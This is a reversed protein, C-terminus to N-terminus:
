FPPPAPNDGPIVQVYFFQTFLNPYGDGPSNQSDDGAAAIKQLVNMGGIVTGFQTYNPGLTTDKWVFFFQSGNTNPGANAMAVTGAPYSTTGLNEDNFLGCVQPRRSEQATTFSRRLLELSTRLHRSWPNVFYGFCQSVRTRFRELGRKEVLDLGLEGFRFAAQYDGFRPGVFWGLQVYAVCSGDSNGHELSLNVMRAVVLCRLNGDIFDAPEEVATLVDLIARCTPDTMPPLDVLAEISRSGLQRLIREYEQRVEDKTPHPSWDIGVRRLYELAAEVARDSQDLASCLETQLRAVVASDVLNGSRRSLVSLRKEAAAFDGILFECEAQHFELGFTLAYRQEWSDEALLARGAVLYTLASAYATSTKARKGAILNLEAVREREELSHILETGRDLQNVIEFIKDEIEESATRSVFLRGIRLHVAARESEPILAYAAEQVRDHLFTYVSDLRFVLGARVAQWLAAHIQEEKGRSGAGPAHM